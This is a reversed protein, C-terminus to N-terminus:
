PVADPFVQFLRRRFEVADKAAFDLEDAAVKGLEGLASGGRGGVCRGDSGVAHHRDVRGFDGRDVQREVGVLAVGLVDSAAGDHLEEAAGGRAPPQRVDFQRGLELADELGRRLLRVEVHLTVEALAVSLAVRREVVRGLEAEHRGHLEEAGLARRDVDEVVAAVRRQLEDLKGDLAGVHARIDVHLGAVQAAGHQQKLLAGEVLALQDALAGHDEGVVHKVAALPGNVVQDTLADGTVALAQM